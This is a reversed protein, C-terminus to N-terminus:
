FTIILEEAEWLKGRLFKLHVYYYFITTSTIEPRQVRRREHPDLIQLHCQLRQLSYDQLM